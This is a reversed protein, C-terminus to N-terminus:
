QTPKISIRKGDSSVHFNNQLKRLKKTVKTEIKESDANNDVESIYRKILKKKLTKMKLGDQDKGSNKALISQVTSSWDFNTKGNMEKSSIDGFTDPKICKSNNIDSQNSNVKRKKTNQEHINQPSSSSTDHIKKISKTGCFKEVGQNIVKDEVTTEQSLELKHGNQNTKASEIVSEENKAFNSDRSTNSADEVQSNNTIDNLTSPSGNTSVQSQNKKIASEFVGWTKEITAPSCRKGGGIVNKVFNVFKPKKRPINDFTMIGDLLSKVDKDITNGMKEVAEQISEIWANQKKLGKNANPKPQWGKASYKEAESICSTHSQYSDGPFTKQCDMCTLSSCKRCQSNYHKEVQSKKLSSGCGDCTFVVM